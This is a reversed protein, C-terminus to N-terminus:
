VSILFLLLMTLFFYILMGVIDLATAIFPASAVAPDINMKKFLIPFSTGMFAAVFINAFMSLSVIVSFLITQKAIMLNFILLIFAVIFGIVSGVIMERLIYGYSKEINVEGTSIGRVMITASQNGVNGSLGMLVPIFSLSLALTFLDAKFHHAYINIIYVSALGGIITLLLWPLRSKVAYIVKGSLLESEEADESTGSLKYIDETAEKVVVDVMDDATIIGVLVEKANVVPLVVLDYKRFINVTETVDMNAYLKIKYDNRIDKIKQKLDSVLLDRLTIYGVLKKENDTIFIFFSIESEPLSQKRINKLAAEVTLEEPISVYETTMIAGATDEEYSLLGRIDSAEKKPLANIIEGAKEEDREFLEELLDVADDPEMEKIYEVALDTKFFSILELQNGLKMQELIEVAVDPKFKVFFKYQDEFSLEELAEAIDAEHYKKLFLIYQQKTGRELLRQLLTVVKEKLFKSNNNESM